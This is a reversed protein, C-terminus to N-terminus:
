KYWSGVNASVGVRVDFRPFISPPTPGYYTATNLYEGYIVFRSLWGKNKDNLKGLSPAFRLGGGVLLGNEWFFDCPSNPDRSNQPNLSCGVTGVHRYKSLSSQVAVYPTITSIARRENKKDNCDKKDNSDKSPIRFGFRASNAFLVSDYRDTFENASQWYLGNWVEAWRYHALDNVNRANWYDFGAKTQNRPRWSTGQKPFDEGWYHTFNYEGFVRVPGFFWGTFPYLQIGFGPGGLWGNQWANPGSGAIGAVRFYPGWRHDKQFPPLWLEVRNDWQFVGTNYHPAFFQTERYGGDLSSSVTFWKGLGLSQSKEQGVCPNASKEQGVCAKGGLDPSTSKEQGVCTKGGLLMLGAFCIKLCFDSM